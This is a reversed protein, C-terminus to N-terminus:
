GRHSGHGFPDQGRCLGHAKGGTGPKSMVGYLQTPWWTDDRIALSAVGNHFPGQGQWLQPCNVRRPIELCGGRWCCWWGVVAVAVAVACRQLSESGAYSLCSVELAMLLCVVASHSVTRCSFVLLHSTFDRYVLFSVELISESKTEQYPARDTRSGPLTGVPQSESSRDTSDRARVGSFQFM